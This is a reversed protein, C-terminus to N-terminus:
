RHGPQFWLHSVSSLKPLVLLSPHRQNKDGWLRAWGARNICLCRLLYEFLHSMPRSVFCNIFLHIYAFVHISDLKQYLYAFTYTNQRFFNDVQFACCHNNLWNTWEKNWNAWLPITGFNFKYVVAPALQFTSSLNSKTFYTAIHSLMQWSM